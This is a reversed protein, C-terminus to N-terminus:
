IHRMQNAIVTFLSCFDGIGRDFMLCVILFMRLAILSKVKGINLSSLFCCKQARIPRVCMKQSRGNPLNARSVTNKELVVIAVSSYLVCQLLAAFFFSVSYVSHEFTNMLRIRIAYVVNSKLTQRKKKREKSLM